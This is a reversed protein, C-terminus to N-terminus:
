SKVGDPNAAFLVVKYQNPPSLKSGYTSVDGSLPFTGVGEVNVLVQAHGKHDNLQHEKMNEILKNLCVYDTMKDGEKYSVINQGKLYQLLSEFFNLRFEDRVEVGGERLDFIVQEIIPIAANRKAAFVELQLLANEINTISTAAERESITM